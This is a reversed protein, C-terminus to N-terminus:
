LIMKIPGHHSHEM